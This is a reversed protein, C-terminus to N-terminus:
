RPPPLPPPWGGDSTPPSWVCDDVFPFGRGLRDLLINPARVIRLMSDGPSNALALSGGLLGGEGGASADGQLPGGSPREPPFFLYGPVEPACVCPFLFCGRIWMFGVLWIAVTGIQAASIFPGTHLPCVAPGNLCYPIAQFCACYTVITIPIIWLYLLSLRLKSLIIIALVDVLLVWLYVYQMVYWERQARAGAYFSTTSEVLERPLCFLFEVFQLAYRMFSIIVNFLLYLKAIDYLNGESHALVVMPSLFPLYGAFPHTLSREPLPRPPAPLAPPSLALHPLAPPPLAPLPRAGPIIVSHWEILIAWLITTCYAYTNSEARAALSRLLIRTQYISAYYSNFSSNHDFTTNWLFGVVYLPFVLYVLITAVKHSLSAEMQWYDGWTTVSSPVQTLFSEILIADLLVFEFVITVICFIIAVFQHCNCAICNWWCLQSVPWSCRCGLWPIVVGRPNALGPFWMAAPANSHPLLMQQQIPDYVEAEWLARFPLAAEPSVFGTTMDLATDALKRSISMYCAWQFVSDSYWKQFLMVMSLTYPPTNPPTDKPPLASPSILFAPLIETLTPQTYLAPADWLRLLEPPSPPPSQRDPM